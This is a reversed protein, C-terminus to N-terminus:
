LQTILTLGAYQTYSDGGIIPILTLIIGIIAPPTTKLVISDKFNSIIKTALKKLQLLGLNTLTTNFIKLQILRTSVMSKQGNQLDSQIPLDLASLMTVMGWSAMEIH